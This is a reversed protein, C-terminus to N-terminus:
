RDYTLLTLSHTQKHKMCVQSLEIKSQNRDVMHLMEAVEGRMSMRRKTWLLSNFYFDLEIASSSTPVAFFSPFALCVLAYKFLGVEKIWEQLNVCRKINSFSPTNTQADLYEALQNRVRTRKKVVTPVAGFNEQNGRQANLEFEVSNCGAFSAQRAFQDAFCDDTEDDNKPAHKPDADMITDIINQKIKAEVKEYSTKIFDAKAKSLIRQYITEDLPANSGKEKSNGKSLKLAATRADKKAKKWWVGGVAISESNVLLTMVDHVITINRFAPHLLNQAELMFDQRLEM